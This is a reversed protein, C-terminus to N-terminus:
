CTFLLEANHDSLVSEIRQLQHLHEKNDWPITVSFITNERSILNLNRCLNILGVKNYTEM